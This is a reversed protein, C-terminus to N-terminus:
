SPTDKDELTATVETGNGPSSQIAVDGNFAKAREKMGMLGFHGEASGRCNEPDFGKGDDVVSFSLRRGSLEGSVAITRAHGHRIANVTAERIISLAAHRIAESLSSSPVDFDLALSCGGLHPALTAKIADALTDADLANGRLDWICCRLERRCSALIRKAAQTEGADLEFSVDDLARVVRKPGFLPSPAPYYKKLHEVRLLSM